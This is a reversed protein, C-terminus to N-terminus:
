IEKSNDVTTNFVSQWQQTAPLPWSLTLSSIHWASSSPHTPYSQMAERSRSCKAGWDM